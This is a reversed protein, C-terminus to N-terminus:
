YLIKSFLLKYLSIFYSIKQKLYALLIENCSFKISKSNSYYIKQHNYAEDCSPCQETGNCCNNGCDACKVMISKCDNCYSLIHKSKM